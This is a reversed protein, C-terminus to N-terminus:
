SVFVVPLEYGRAALERQLALGDLGPMSLDLVLCGTADYPIQRLFEEASEYGVPDLGASRFLRTLSRLVAPDDDVMYVRETPRSMGAGNEGRGPDHVRLDRRRGCHERRPADRQPDRRDDSLRGARPGNRGGEDHPVASLRS